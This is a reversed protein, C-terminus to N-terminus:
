AKEKMKYKQLEKYLAVCNEALTENLTGSYLARGKENADHIFVSIPIGITNCIHVIGLASRKDSKKTTFNKVVDRHYGTVKSFEKVTIGSTQRKLIIELNETRDEIPVFLHKSIEYVSRHQVVVPEGKPPFFHTISIRLANCARILTDINLNDLMFMSSSMGVMNCFDSQNMSFMEPLAHWLESNFTYERRGFPHRFSMESVMPSRLMQKLSLNEKKLEKIHTQLDAILRDKGKLMVQMRKQEAMTENLKAIPFGSEMSWDPCQIVKNSDEIFDKADLQLKNLMEIFTRLKMSGTKVWRDVPTYDAFGLVKALGTKDVVNGANPKEFIGRINQPNWVIPTWTEIPSVYTERRWDISENEKTVLFDAMSLRYKNLFLVFDPVSMSQEGIWQFMRQRGFGAIISLETNSKGLIKNLESLLNLNFYYM